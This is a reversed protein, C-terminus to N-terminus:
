ASSFLKAMSFRGQGRWTKELETLIVMTFKQRLIVVACVQTTVRKLIM